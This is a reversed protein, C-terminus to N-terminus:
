PMETENWQYNQKDYVELPVVCENVSKSRSMSLPLPAHCDEHKHKHTIHIEIVSCFLCNTKPNQIIRVFIKIKQELNCESINRSIRPRTVYWVCVCCFEVKFIYQISAEFRGEESNNCCSCSCSSSSHGMRLM